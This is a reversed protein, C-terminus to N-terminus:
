ARVLWSSRASRDVYSGARDYGGAASAIRALSRAIESFSSGLRRCRAFAHAAQEVAAAGAVRDTVQTVGAVADLATRLDSEVALLAGVDMVVLADGMRDLVRTLQQAAEAAADATAVIPRRNGNV